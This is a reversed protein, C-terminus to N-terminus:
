VFALPGERFLPTYLNDYIRDHKGILQVESSNWSFLYNIAKKKSEDVHMKTVIVIMSWM